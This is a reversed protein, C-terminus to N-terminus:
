DLRRRISYAPANPGSIMKSFIKPDYPGRVTLRPYTNPPPSNSKFVDKHPIRMTPKLRTENPHISNTKEREFKPYANPGPTEFKPKLPKPRGAFTFRNKEEIPLISKGVSPYLAPETHISPKLPKTARGFSFKNARKPINLGNIPLKDNFYMENSDDLLPYAAPGPNILQNELFRRAGFTSKLSQDNQYFSQDKHQQRDDIQPYAAPGPGFAKPKTKEGKPFSYMPLKKFTIDHNKHGVTTHNTYKTTIKSKKESLNAM